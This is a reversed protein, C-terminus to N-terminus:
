INHNMYQVQGRYTFELLEKNGKRIDISRREDGVSLHERLSVYHVERHGGVGRGLLATLQDGVRVAVKVAQVNGAEAKERNVTGAAARVHGGVLHM